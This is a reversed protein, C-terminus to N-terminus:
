AILFNKLCPIYAVLSFISLLLCPFGIIFIIQSYRISISVFMKLGISTIKLQQGVSFNLELIDKVSKSIYYIRKVHNTDSNRTLLHGNLPFSEDIGYFTKISNIIAEDKFFVVPDVGKWKGQVQLKRKGGAKKPDTERHGPAQTEESNHEEGAICIHPKVAAGDPENDVLDAESAAESIKEDTGDGSIVELEKMDEIVQNPSKVCPEDDGQLIRPKEQM